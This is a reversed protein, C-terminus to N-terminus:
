PRARTMLNTDYAPAGSPERFVAAPARIQQLEAKRADAALQLLAARTPPPLVDAVTPM